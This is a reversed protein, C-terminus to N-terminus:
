LDDVTVGSPYLTEIYQDTSPEPRISGHLNEAKARLMEQPHRSDRSKPRTMASRLHGDNVLGVSVPVRFGTRDCILYNSPVETANANEIATAM